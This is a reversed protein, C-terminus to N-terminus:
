IEKGLLEIAHLPIQLWGPRNRAEYGCEYVAKDAQYAAVLTAATPDLGDPAYGELFATHNRTTWEQGRYGLQGALEADPSFDILVSHAAYDFSRLMGAVDRWPSDPLRREALPKAPEGEFDVLKWGLSTRLTQGLHLDGHIRQFPLAASGDLEAVRAFVARLPDEHEALRPVVALADDLRRNMTAALEAVDGTTTPFATRLDAHVAAVAEGLRLSEAAFDGGVEEAHLDEEAYLNRVSALALEWGDTATRLFQQLMALDTTRRGGEGSQVDVWGYLAAVHHNDAETLARHIEIDPNQGVSVKRFVKLIADDGYMVSSNSQQGSFLTSHTGGDLDHGPLRHFTAAGATTPAAVFAKLYTDMAERDHVADYTWEGDGERVLAHGLRDQPEPYTSVPMQYSEEAPQGDAYAVDVLEIRVREGLEAVVRVDTVEFDRGKGGFWRQRALFEQRQPHLSM